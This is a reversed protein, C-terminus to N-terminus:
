HDKGERETTKASVWFSNIGPFVVKANRRRSKGWTTNDSGRRFQLRKEEGSPWPGGENNALSWRPVGKNRKWLNSKKRMLKTQGEGKSEGTRQLWLTHRLKGGIPVKRWKAEKRREATHEKRKGFSQGSPAEKWGWELVEKNNFEGGGGHNIRGL